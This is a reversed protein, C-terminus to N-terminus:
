SSRVTARNRVQSSASARWAMVALVYALSAGLASCLALVLGSPALVHLTMLALCFGPMARLGNAMTAAAAAGGLRGHIVIVFSVLVIPFVLLIGTMRTGIAQSATVIGAVVLGTALARLPLDLRSRPPTAAVVGATAGRTLRVGILFTALVAATATLPTWAIERIVLVAALWVGLAGALLPVITCRPALKVVAVLFLNVAATAAFSNLASAAVFGPTAQLALLVYGPGAGLPLSCILGGWFPGGREAAVSALLVVSVTALIKVLLALWFADLV